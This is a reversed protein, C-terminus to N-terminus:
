FPNLWSNSQKFAKLCRLTQERSVWELVMAAFSPTFSMIQRLSLGDMDLVTVVGNIQTAPELMGAELCIQVARFIDNIACKAPNWKESIFFYTHLIKGFTNFNMM